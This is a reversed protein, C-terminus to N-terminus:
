PWGVDCLVRIFPNVDTAKQLRMLNVDSYSFFKCFKFVVYFCDQIETCVNTQVKQIAVPEM